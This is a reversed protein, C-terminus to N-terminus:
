CKGADVCRSLGRNHVMRINLLPLIHAWKAFAWVIRRLSFVLRFSAHKCPWFLLHKIQVGPCSLKYLCPIMAAPCRKCHWSDPMHCRATPGSRRMWYSSVIPFSLDPQICPFDMLMFLDHPKWLTSSLNYLLLMHFLLINLLTQVSVCSSILQSTPFPVCSMLSLVNSCDLSYFFQTPFHFVTPCEIRINCRSLLISNMCFSLSVIAAETAATLYVWVNFM